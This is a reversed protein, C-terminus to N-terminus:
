SAFILFKLKYFLYISYEKMKKLLLNNVYKITFLPRNILFHMIEKFQKVKGVKKLNFISNRLDLYERIEQWLLKKNKTFEQVNFVHHKIVFKVAKLHKSLNSSASKKHFFHNGLPKNTFYFKAGKRAVNMFFSYDESTIFKKQEDFLIQNEYLFKKEVVSASTSLRNGNKLLLQYFNKKYPGYTWIKDKTKSLYSIWESHCIVKVSSKKTLQFTIKLKDKSWHDDTDLFAIWKGKALKIGLNRSKAILGNNKIKKYIIKKKYKKVIEATNDSSKNDIVIVEYNKFTQQFVSHLSAKLFSAQNYTPIIVSFFPNNM